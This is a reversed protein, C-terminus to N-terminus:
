LILQVSFNHRIAYQIEKEVFELIIQVNVLRLIQM